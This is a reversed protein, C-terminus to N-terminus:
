NRYAVISKAVNKRIYPHKSLIEESATNINMKIVGENEIYVFPYILKYRTSDMGYVEKLQQVSHFGGLANRYKIIRQAFVPGIGNIAILDSSDSSNLALPFSTKLGIASTKNPYKDNTTEPIIIYPELESYMQETMGYIKKLDEKKRFFGGKAEYNKITAALRPPIGLRIWDEIPLQNPNFPFPNLRVTKNKFSEYFTKKQKEFLNEQKGLAMSKEIDEILSDFQSFDRQEKKVLLPLSLPLLLSLLLIILLILIGNRERRSFYFFDKIKM